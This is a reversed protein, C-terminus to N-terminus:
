LSFSKGLIVLAMTSAVSTMLLTLSIITLIFGSYVKVFSAILKEVM